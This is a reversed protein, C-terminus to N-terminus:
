NEKKLKNLIQELRETTLTTGNEIYDQMINYYVEPDNKRIHTLLWRRKTYDDM